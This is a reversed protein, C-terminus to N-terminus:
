LTHWYFKEFGMCWIVRWCSKIEIDGIHICKILNSIIFRLRIFIFQGWGTAVASVMYIYMHVNINTLNWNKKKEKCLSIINLFNIQMCTWTWTKCVSCHHFHLLIFLHHQLFLCQAELQTSWKMKIIVLYLGDGWM